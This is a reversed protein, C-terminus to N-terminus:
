QGMVRVELGYGPREPRRYGRDLAAVDLPLTAVDELLLAWPPFSSVTALGKIYGQCSRCFEVKRTQEGGEPALYGLKAHDTENCFPCRLWATDWGVGCRGCRLRRKRELGQFEALTPWGGCVPCYGERWAPRVLAGLGRGCRHLLPIVAVQAIVRLVHPDAGASCALADVRADDQSLAAELLLLADLRR